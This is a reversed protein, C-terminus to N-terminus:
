SLDFSAVFDSYSQVECSLKAETGIDRLREEQRWDATVFRSCYAMYIAMMQDNRGPLHKFVQPALAVDFWSGVLGYCTARFPPCGEIFANIDFNNLAVGSGRFYLPGGLGALVAGQKAIEAAQAYATPRKSPDADLLPDLKTRLQRWFEMFNKELQQQEALQIRCLDSSFNRKIIAQEYIGARIDVLQWNFRAPNKAHTSTLLTLIEHPPWLCRGCALLRQLGAVLTERTEAVPTAIVEDVSMATLWVDFGCALAAFLAESPSDKILRNLASTDFIIVSRSM